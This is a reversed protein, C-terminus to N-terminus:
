NKREEKPINAMRIEKCCLKRGRELDASGRKESKINFVVRCLPLIIIGLIAGEFGIIIIDFLVSAQNNLIM